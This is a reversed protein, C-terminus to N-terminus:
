ILLLKTQPISCYIIKESECKKQKIQLILVIQCIVVEDM